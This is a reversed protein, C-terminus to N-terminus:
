LRHGDLARARGADQWIEEVRAQAAALGPGSRFFNVEPDVVLRQLRRLIEVPDPGRERRLPALAAEWAAAIETEDLGDPPVERARRAAAC